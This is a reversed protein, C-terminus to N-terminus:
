IGRLVARISAAGSAGPARAAGGRRHARGEGLELAIDQGAARKKEIEARWSAFVDTWAEITYRYRGTRDLAFARRGLPRQRLHRM